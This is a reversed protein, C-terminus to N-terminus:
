GIGEDAVCSRLRTQVELLLGRSAADTILNNWYQNSRLKHSDGLIFLSSRARTLAVNM